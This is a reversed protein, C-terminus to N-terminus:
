SPRSASILEEPHELLGDFQRTVRLAREWSYLRVEQEHAREGPAPISSATPKWRGGEIVYTKGGPPTGTALKPEFWKSALRAPSVGGSSQIIERFRRLQEPRLRVGSGHQELMKHVELMLRGARSVPDPMYIGVHHDFRGRRIAADDIREIHNTMLGYAVRKRQAAAYLQALKPLMGPTLFKYIDLDERKEGSDRKWLVPEFEDFIIVVRTLTSLARFTARAHAELAAEGSKAIDSPSIEVLTVNSSKALAELLTTKGTGPPGFFVGSFVSKYTKPLQAELIHARMRQLTIGVPERSIPEDEEDNHSDRAPAIFRRGHDPYLLQELGLDIEEPKKKSFHALVLKNIKRDLMRVFKDLALVALASVWLTPRRPSPPDEMHWGCVKQGGTTIDPRLNDFPVLLQEATEPSIPVDVHQLLECLARCVEFQLTHWRLGNPMSHFPRGRPFLGDESPANILLRAARVLREDHRWETLAGYAGAAFALERADWLPKEQSAATLEHDLVSAIYRKAPDLLKRVEQAITKFLDALRALNALPDATDRFLRSGEEAKDAADTIVKLALRHASESRDIVAKSERLSELHRAEEIDKKATNFEAASAVFGTALESQLAEFYTQICKYDFRGVPQPLSLDFALHAAGHAASVYWELAARECEVNKWESPIRRSDLRGVHNRFEATRRFFDATKGISRALMLVARVCEATVYASVEGSAGAKAGGANWDPSDAVYLERIIRYYCLLTTRSFTHEPSAIVTQMARAALMVPIEDAKRSLLHDVLQLDRVHSVLRPQASGQKHKNQVRVLLSAEIRGNSGQWFSEKQDDLAGDDEHPLVMNDKISALSSMGDKRLKLAASRLDDLRVISPLQESLSSM